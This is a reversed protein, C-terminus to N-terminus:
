PKIEKKKKKKFLFLILAKRVPSYLAYTPFLMPFESWIVTRDYPSAPKCVCVVYM